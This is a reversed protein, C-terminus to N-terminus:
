WRGSAGGGSSRGGGFGGSSGSSSKTIRPIEYSDRRSYDCESCRTTQTGRGAQMTNAATDVVRNRRLTKRGCTPCARFRTAVDGIQRRLVAAAFVGFFLVFPLASLLGTYDREVKPPNRSAFPRALRDIVAQTGTQIGEAYRNDRFAPLMERDIVRQALGDYVADFGAGLAIRMERDGQAVLILIGDHRTKDGIGWANFLNKAYTEISQGSGGYKARFDLVVLAIHVGTEDRAEQLTDSLTIEQQPTLVDAFDSVTDSLPQPMGQALATAPLFLLLLLARILGRIM